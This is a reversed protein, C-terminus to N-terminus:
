RGEDDGLARFADPICGAEGVGDGVRGGEEGENVISRDVRVEGVMMLLLLTNVDEEGMEWGEARAAADIPAAPFADKVGEGEGGREFPSSGISRRREINSPM